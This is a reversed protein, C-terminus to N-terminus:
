AEAQPNPPGGLADILSEIEADSLKLLQDADIARKAGFMGLEKGLLELAKLAVAEKGSATVPKDAGARSATLMAREFVARLQAIVWRRDVALVGRLEAVRDVIDPRQALKALTRPHYGLTTAITALDHDAAIAEAVADHRPNLLPPM